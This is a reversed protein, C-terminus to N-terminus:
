SRALRRIAAVIIPVAAPKSESMAEVIATTVTDRDAEATQKVLEAAKAPLDLVPVDRLTKKFPNTKATDIALLNTSVIMAAVAAVSLSLKTIKM